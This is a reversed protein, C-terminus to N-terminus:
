GPRIVDGKRPSYCPKLVDQGRTNVIVKEFVCKVGIGEQLTPHDQLHFHLHPESSNGSNGCSGIRQGRTVFDGARIAIRGPQLHALVSIEDKRHQILVANGVAAYSNMSGPANERVGNIVEIVSGDTPAFIPQGYAYYDENQKGQGRHSNGSGDVIVFDFAVRQNPVDHHINLRKTDGGWGVLWEGTFPLSLRTRCRKVM